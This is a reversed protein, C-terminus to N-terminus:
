SLGVPGGSLQGRVDKRTSCGFRALRSTGLKKIAEAGSHGLPCLLVWQLYIYDLHTIYHWCIGRQLVYRVHPLVAM